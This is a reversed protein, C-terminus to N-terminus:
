RSYCILRNLNYYHRTDICGGETVTQSVVYQM